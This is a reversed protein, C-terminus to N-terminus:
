KHGKLTAALQGHWDLRESLLRLVASPLMLESPAPLIENRRITEERSYNGRFFVLDRKVMM